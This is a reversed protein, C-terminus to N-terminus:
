VDHWRSTRSLVVGAAVAGATSTRLVSPGLRVAVGGAETMAALESDTIGGEPGIVILVEGADPVEIAALPQAASEHLVLALRAAKVRSVLAGVKTVQDVVDPVWARRAQKAAECATSRWKLLAKEGREGRWRAISRAAAWPVIEDVGVETMMEVAREGRDGKALAQVVTLHPQSPPIDTVSQVDCVVVDRKVSSVACSVVRGRGDTVDVLEGVTLRRVTAGHWGEAGDIVVEDDGLRLADVLFVPVTSVGAL